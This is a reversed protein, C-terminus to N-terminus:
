VRAKERVRVPTLVCWAGPLTDNRETLYNEVRLKLLDMGSPLVWVVPV